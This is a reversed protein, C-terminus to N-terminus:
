RDPNGALIRGAKGKLRHRCTGLVARQDVRCFGELSTALARHGGLGVDQWAL